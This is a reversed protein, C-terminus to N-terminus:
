ADTAEEHMEPHDYWHARGANIDRLLKPPVYGILNAYHAEWQEVEDRLSAAYDCAATPKTDPRIDYNTGGCAYDHYIPIRADDVPISQVAPM